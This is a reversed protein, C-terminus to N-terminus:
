QAARTSPNMAAIRERITKLIQASDPIARIIKELNKYMNPSKMEKRWDALYPEIKCFFFLHEGNCERFLEADICGHAVLTAAMEWYTGVMRLYASHEGRLVELIYQTSTPHFDRGLWVRAERMVKERRLDYLKLILKADEHDAAM